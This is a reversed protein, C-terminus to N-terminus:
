DAEKEDVFYHKKGNVYDVVHELFFEQASKGDDILKKAFEKHLGSSIRVTIGRTEIPSNHCDRGCSVLPCTSCNGNNQTCYM